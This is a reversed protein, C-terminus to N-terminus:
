RTEKERDRVISPVHFMSTNLAVDVDRVTPSIGFPAFVAHPLPPRGCLARSALARIDLVGILLVFFGVAGTGSLLLPPSGSHLFPTLAGFYALPLTFVVLKIGLSLFSFLYRCPATCGFALFQAGQTGAGIDGTREM